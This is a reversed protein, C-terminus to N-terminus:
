VKSTTQTSPISDVSWVRTGLYAKDTEVIMRGMDRLQDHMEICGNKAVNVLSREILTNFSKIPPTDNSTWVHLARSRLIGGPWVDKCFFCAIDLFMTREDMRLGDFSIKLTSWLRTNEIDEKCGDLCRGRKMRQFAREWSRLRWKDRLFAGLVGLSLPLGSCAEVIRGGIDRFEDPLSGKSGCSHHIFLENAASEDLTNVMIKGNEGVRDKIIDWHRTTIILTIGTNDSLIDPHLLDDVQLQDKIDDLIILVKKGVMFEKLMNQADVLNTPLNKPDKGFDKLMDCLIGFSDSKDKLDKVFCSANYPDKLEQFIVNALTTKGIGGMGVLGLIRVEKLCQKVKTLNNEAGVVMNNEQM